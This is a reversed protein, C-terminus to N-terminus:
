KRRYRRRERRSMQRATVVRARGGPFREFVVVTMRGDLTPGSAVYRGDRGRDLQFAGAFVEEVEEPTYEHRAIHEVNAEDWEFLM